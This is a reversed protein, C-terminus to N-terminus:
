VAPGEKQRGHEEGSKRHSNDGGDPIIPNNYCTQLLIELIESFKHINLSYICNNVSLKM